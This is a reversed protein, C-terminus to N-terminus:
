GGTVTYLTVILEDGDKVPLNLQDPFCELNLFIDLHRYLKGNIDFLESKIGPYQRVLDQLCEGITKGTVDVVANDGTFEYFDSPIDVKVSM